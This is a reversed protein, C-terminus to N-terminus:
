SSGTRPSRLFYSTKTIAQRLLQKTTSCAFVCPLLSAIHARETGSRERFLHLLDDYSPEPPLRSASASTQAAMLKSPSRYVPSSILKPSPSSVVTHPMSNGREKSPTALEFPQQDVLRRSTGTHTPQVNHQPATRQDYFLSRFEIGWKRLQKERELQALELQITVCYREELDRRRISAEDEVFIWRCPNEDTLYWTGV